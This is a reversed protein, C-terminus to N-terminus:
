STALVKRIRTLTQRKIGLFSSLHTLSIRNLLEKNHSIFNLYRQEANEFLFSEIRNQRANLHKEAILRGFKEFSKYKSYSEQILHYPINVLLCPEITQIYYKSPKQEIFASYDAAYFNEKIFTITIEEGSKDIYFIRLLGKYVFGLSKQIEGAILYNKKAELEIVKVKNTHFNLENTNLDPCVKKLANSYAEIPKSINYNSM